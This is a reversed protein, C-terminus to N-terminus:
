MENRIKRQIVIIIMVGQEGTLWSMTKELFFQASKSEPSNWLLKGPLLFSAIGRYWSM